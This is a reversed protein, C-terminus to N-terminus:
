RKDTMDPEIILVKHATKTQGDVVIELRNTPTVFGNLRNTMFLPVRPEYAIGYGLVGDSMIKPEYYDALHYGLHEAFRNAIQIASQKTLQQHIQSDSPTKSCSTLVLSLM